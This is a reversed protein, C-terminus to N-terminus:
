GVDLGSTSPLRRTDYNSGIETLRGPGPGGGGVASLIQTLIDNQENLLDNTQNAANLSAIAREQAEQARQTELAIINEADAQAQARDAAYEPGATGFAERTTEVLQRELNALRDAAGDDGAQAATRAEAIQELIRQRQEAPTGEFLDGFKLNDLFDRLSGLRQDLTDKLIKEREKANLEEVKVLDLGYAKAIRVRDKATNEFDRFIKEYASGVGGLAAELDQVKLAERLARGLDGSSNLAKRVAESLGTIGGDRIADAIAFMIAGQQDDNFDFTGPTGARLSRGTMGNTNVRWDGDYRGVAVNFSGLGGGLQNAIDLLGDQVSRALQGVDSSLSKSGTYNPNEYVNTITAGGSPLKKKGGLLGGFLGGVASGLMSGIQGGLPGGIATGLARGGISGIAGGISSLLNGTKSRPGLISNSVMTGIAAGQIAQGVISGIKKAMQEGLIGKALKELLDGFFTAPDKIAKSNLKRGTVIVDGTSDGQGEPLPALPDVGSLKDAATQASDALSSIANNAKDIIDRLESAGVAVPQMVGKVQDAADDFFSGFIKAFLDDGVLQEVMGILNKPLDRLGEGSFTFIGRFADRTASIADLYKQQQARAKEAERQEARRANVIARVADVQEPLLDGVQKQLGAVTRIVEAEAERGSNILRQQELETQQQEIYDRYPANIADTIVTKAQRGQQLLEEFNPPKRKEIEAMIRDVDELAQQIQVARSAEPSFRAALGSLQDGRQIGFQALQDAQRQQTAQQSAVQDPGLRGRAFAAHVHDDHGKNGPGLLELLKVGSAAAAEQILQRWNGPLSGMGGKPVFDVAQGSLHYSNAAGGVQKNRAASRIGSTATGGGFVDKLINGVDAGTVKPLTPGSRSQRNQEQLQKTERERRKENADLAANLDKTSITGAKQLNGLRALEKEYRDTVAFSPDTRARSDRRSLPVSALRVNQEAIRLQQNSIELARRMESIQDAYIGQAAGAGAGGAAGFNMSRANQYNAQAEELLAQISRRRELVEQRKAQAADLAAQEAERSTRIAKGLAENEDIIAKTLEETTMKHLKQAETLNEFGKTGEFLKSVFPALVSTAILIAAGWPGALISGVRGAIGGMGTMAFGVQGAQAAFVQLPKAGLSLQTAIDNIQVGLGRSAASQARTASTLKATEATQKRKAAAAADAAAAETREANGLQEVGGKVQRLEATADSGDATIALSLDFDAM